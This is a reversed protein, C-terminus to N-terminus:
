ALFVGVLQAPGTLDAPVADLEANPGVFPLGNGIAAPRSGDTGRSGVRPM